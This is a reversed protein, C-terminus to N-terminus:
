VEVIKIGHVEEVIKKKLRYVATRVGKADEVVWEKKSVDFYQFDAKYFGVAKGTKVLLPFKPQLELQKIEGAQEMSLLILYRDAERKSDFLYGNIETKVNGYKTRTM